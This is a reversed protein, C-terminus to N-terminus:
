IRDCIIIDDEKLRNERISLAPDLVRGSRWSKRATRFYWKDAIAHENTYKIPTESQVENFENIFHYLLDGLVMNVPAKTRFLSEAEDVRKKLKFGLVLVPSSEEEDNLAIPELMPYAWYTYVPHPMAVLHLYAQYILLPVLFFLLSCLMPFFLFKDGVFYYLAAVLGILMFNLVSITYMVETVSQRIRNHTHQKFFKRHTIYILLTGLLLATAALIIYTTLYDKSLMSTLFSVIAAGLSFLINTWWTKSGLNSFNQNLKKLLVMILVSSAFFSSIFVIFFKLTM